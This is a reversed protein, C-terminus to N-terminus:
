WFEGAKRREIEARYTAILRSAAALAETQEALQQRLAANEESLTADRLAPPALSCVAGKVRGNVLSVGISPLNENAGPCLPCISGGDNRVWSGHTDCTGHHRYVSTLLSYEGM